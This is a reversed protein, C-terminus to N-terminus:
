GRQAHLEGPIGMVWLLALAGVCLSLFRRFMTLRREHYAFPHFSDAQSTGAPLLVAPVTPSEHTGPPGPRVPIGKRPRVPEVPTRIRADRGLEDRLRALEEQFVVVGLGPFYLREKLRRSLVLM